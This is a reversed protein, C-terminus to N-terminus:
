NSAIKGTEGKIHTYFWKESIRGNTKSALDEQFDVIDQGKFEILKKKSHPHAERYTAEIAAKLLIFYQYDSERM